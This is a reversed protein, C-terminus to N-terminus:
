PWTRRPKSSRTCSSRRTSRRERAGDTIFHVADTGTVRPWPVDAGGVADSSRARELLATDSTPGEVLGEGTTALSVDGGSTSSMLRRAMAVAHQWRTRGDSTKASMSTSSDLVVLLRGRGTANVRPAPRAVALALLIAVLVTAVLSVARRVKEVV